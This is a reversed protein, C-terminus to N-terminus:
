RNISWLVFGLVILGVIAVAALPWSISNDCTESLAAMTM